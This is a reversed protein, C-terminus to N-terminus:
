RGSPRYHGVRPVEAVDQVAPLIAQALWRWGHRETIRAPNWDRPAPLIAGFGQRPLRPHQGFPLRRGLVFDEPLCAFLDPRELKLFGALWHRMFAYLRNRGANGCSRMLKHFHRNGAYCREAKAELWLAYRDPLEVDLFRSVEGCVSEAIAWPMLLTDRELGPRPELGASPSAAPRPRRSCRPSDTARRQPPAAARQVRNSM